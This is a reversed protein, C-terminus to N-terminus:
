NASRKRSGSSTDAFPFCEDYKYMVHNISEHKKVELDSSLFASMTAEKTGHTLNQDQTSLYIDANNTNISSFLASAPISSCLYDLDGCDPFTKIGHFADAESFKFNECTPLILNATPSAYDEFLSVIESPIEDSNNEFQNLLHDECEKIKDKRDSFDYDKSLELDASCGVSSSHQLPTPEVELITSLPLCVDFDLEKSIVSLTEDDLEISSNSAESETSTSEFPSYAINQSGYSNIEANIPPEQNSNPRLHTDMSCRENKRVVRRRCAGTESNVISQKRGFSSFINTPRNTIRFDTAGKLYNMFKYCEEEAIEFPFRVEIDDKRM